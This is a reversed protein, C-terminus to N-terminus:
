LGGKVGSESLEPGHVHPIRHFRCMVLFLCSLQAGRWCLWITRPALRGILLLAHHADGTHVAFVRSSLRWPSRPQM